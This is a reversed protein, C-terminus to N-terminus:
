CTDGDARQRAAIDPGSAHGHSSEVGRAENVSIPDNQEQRMERQRRTLAEYQANIAAQQEADYRDLENPAQVTELLIPQLELDSKLTEVQMMLDHIADNMQKQSKAIPVCLALVVLILIILLILNIKQRM